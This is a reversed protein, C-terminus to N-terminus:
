CSRLWAWQRKMASLRGTTLLMHLLTARHPPSHFAALATSVSTLGKTRVKTRPTSNVGAM